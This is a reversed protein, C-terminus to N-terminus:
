LLWTPKERNKYALIHSKENIYYNRYGQVPDGAVKCYDPMCQPMETIRSDKIGKPIVNLANRLKTDTLHVKGYRHTYENCLAVFHDYLWVYNRRSQRAWIASPHNIHGAKYLIDELKSELKWRKIKRGSSADIWMEGDTIRHATSLLQATEIVMKVVHKDCSMQAAIIPDSDLYFINM